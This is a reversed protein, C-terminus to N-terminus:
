ECYNLDVFHWEGPRTESARALTQLRGDISVGYEVDTVRVIQGGRSAVIVELTPRLADEATAAGPGDTDYNVPPSFQSQGDACELQQTNSPGSATETISPATGESGPSQVRAPEFRLYRDSDPAIPATLAETPSVGVIEYVKTGPQLSGEGEAYIPPEPCWPESPGREVVGYQAGVESAEILQGVEYLVGGLRFAPIPDCIITGEPQPGDGSSSLADTDDRSDGCAAIAPSVLAAIAVLGLLRAGSRSRM